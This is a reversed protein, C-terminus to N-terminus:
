VKDIGPSIGGALSFPENPGRKLETKLVNRAHQYKIGLHKHIVVVPHGQQHLYRIAASKTKFQQKLWDLSPLGNEEGTKTTQFMEGLFEDLTQEPQTGGEVVEESHEQERNVTHLRRRAMMGEEIYM